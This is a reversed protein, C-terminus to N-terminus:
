GTETYNPKYINKNLCSFYSEGRCTKKFAVFHKLIIDRPTFICLTIDLNKQMILVDEMYQLLCTM